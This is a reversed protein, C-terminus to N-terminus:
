RDNLGGLRKEIHDHELSVVQDPHPAAVFLPSSRNLQFVGPFEHPVGTKGLMPHGLQVVPSWHGDILGWVGTVGSASIAEHGDCRIYIVVSLDSGADPGYDSKSLQMWFDWVSRIWDSLNPPEAAIQVLRIRLDAEVKRVHQFTMKPTSRHAFRAAVSILNGDQEVQAELHGLFPYTTESGLLAICRTM